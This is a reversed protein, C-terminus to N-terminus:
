VSSPNFLSSMLLSALTILLSSTVVTEFNIFKSKSFIYRMPKSISNYVLPILQWIDNTCLSSPKLCLNSIYLLLLPQTYSPARRFQGFEQQLKRQRINNHQSHTMDPNTLEQQTLRWQEVEPVTLEMGTM